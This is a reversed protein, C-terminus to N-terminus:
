ELLELVERVQDLTPAVYGLVVKSTGPVTHGTIAHLYYPNINQLMMQTVVYSRLDHSGFGYRYKFTEAWTVGWAELKSKYDKPWIPENDNRILATPLMLRIKQILKSHIPITREGGEKLKLNRMQGNWEYRELHMVGANMDLDCWRLGCYDEKRLGQYRGFWFRIDELQEAKTEAAELLQPDLAQRKKAKPLNKKQGKWINETTLEGKTIAYNWFGSFTGLYNSISNPKMGKQALFLKYESAQKRDMTGVVSSGYWESLGKLKTEWNVITSNALGELAKREKVWESWPRIDSKVEELKAEESRTLTAELGQKELDAKDYLGLLLREREQPKYNEARLTNDLAEDLSLGTAQSQERAAMFPDADAEKAWQQLLEAEIRLANKLAEERTDGGKKRVTKSGRKSRLAKPRTVFVYWGSRGKEQGVRFTM